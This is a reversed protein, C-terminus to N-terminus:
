PDLLYLRAADKHKGWNAPLQIFGGDSENVVWSWDLIQMRLPWTQGTGVGNKESHKPNKAMASQQLDFSQQDFVLCEM